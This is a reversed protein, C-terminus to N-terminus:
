NVFVTCVLLLAVFTDSKLVSVCLKDTERRKIKVITTHGSEAEVMM